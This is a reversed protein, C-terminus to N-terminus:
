IRFIPGIEPPPSQICQSPLLPQAYLSLSQVCSGKGWAGCCHPTCGPKLLQAPGEAAGLGLAVHVSEAPSVEEAGLVSLIGARGRGWFSAPCLGSYLQGAACIYTTIESMNDPEGPATQQHGLQTSLGPDAMVASQHRCNMLQTVEEAPAQHSPAPSVDASSTPFQITALLNNMVPELLLVVCM